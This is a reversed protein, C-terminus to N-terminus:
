ILRIRGTLLNQMMGQKIQKYKTLKTELAAIEADMESLIAAIRLQEEHPPTNIQLDNITNSNISDFTTGTSYKAWLLEIFILYFYLFANPYSIACVGRGICAEFEAIAIEGVPARVSMIIDGANCRKTIQSTYNRIITKRDAIDANGQVLPLGIGSKNYNLSSPSQGMKIEALEGLTKVVWGEKPKLLEQMAGQKIARKKAILRELSQILSGADSLATAIATQEALTPPLPIRIKKLHEPGFNPQAGGTILLDVQGKFYKSRLYVLMLQYTIGQLPKFRIVSTNMLLPLDIKRVVSTKCYSNGSSAMVVDNENILFHRYMKDTEVWSIYRETKDLDLVGNEQLNTINIIKLGKNQFQWKRLGPGEQFWIIETLLSVVWDDPIVGVETQKYGTKVEM